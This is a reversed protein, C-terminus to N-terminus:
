TNGAAVGAGGGAVTAVMGGGGSFKEPPSKRGLGFIFRMFQDVRDGLDSEGVREDVGGSGGGGGGATNEIDLKTPNESVSTKQTCTRKAPRISFKALKFIDSLNEENRHEHETTTQSTIKIRNKQTLQKEVILPVNKHKRNKQQPRSCTQQLNQQLNAALRSSATM